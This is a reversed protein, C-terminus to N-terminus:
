DDQYSRAQFCAWGCLAFARLSCKRVSCHEASPFREDAIQVRSAALKTNSVCASRMNLFLSVSNGGPSGFTLFEDELESALAEDVMNTSDDNTMIVPQLQLQIKNVKM